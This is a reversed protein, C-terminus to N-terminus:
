PELVDDWDSKAAEQPKGPDKLILKIDGRPTIDVSAVACGASRAGRIARTIDAQKFIAATKM